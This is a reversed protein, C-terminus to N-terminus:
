LGKLQVFDSLTEILKKRRAFHTQCHAIFASLDQHLGRAFVLDVLQYTFEYVNSQTHTLYEIEKVLAAKYIADIDPHQLPLLSTLYFLANNKHDSSKFAYNNLIMSQDRYWDFYQTLQHYQREEWFFLAREDEKIDLSKVQVYLKDLAENHSKEDDHLEGILKSKLMVMDLLPVFYLSNRAYEPDTLFRDVVRSAREWEKGELLVELLEISFREKEVAASYQLYKDVEGRNKYYRQYYYARDQETLFECEEIVQLFFQDELQWDPTMMMSTLIYKQYAESSDFLAPVRSNSLSIQELIMDHAVAGKSMALLRWLGQYGEERLRSEIVPKIEKPNTELTELVASILEERIEEFVIYNHGQSLWEDDIMQAISISLELAKPKMASSLNLHYMIQRLYSLSGDIARTSKEGIYDNDFVQRQKKIFRSISKLDINQAEWWARTVSHNVKQTVLLHELLAAKKELTLAELIKTVYQPYAAKPRKSVPDQKKVAKTRTSKGTSEANLNQRSEIEESAKVVELEVMLDQYHKLVEQNPLYNLDALAYVAAVIHKCKQQNHDSPCDCRGTLRELDLRLEYYNNHSGEARAIVIGRRNNTHFDFIKGKQYYAVGRRYIEPTTHLKLFHKMDLVDNLYQKQIQKQNLVAAM